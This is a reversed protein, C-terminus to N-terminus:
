EANRNGVEANPRAEEVRFAEALTNLAVAMEALREGTGSLEHMSAIQEQTAAATQQARVVAARAIQQVQEMHALLSSLGHTQVTLDTAIREIFRTNIAMTERLASVADRNESAVEGVDGLRATGAELRARVQAIATGVEQVVQVVEAASAGAQTALRRVEDAVVAFGRGAEGARAAEIAANLALLNTQRAIQQITDVFGGIRQGAGELLAMAAATRRFDEGLELLLGGAREAREAHSATQEAVARTRKASAGAERTLQRSTEVVEDVADRGAGVLATQEEAEATLEGTTAGIQEASAHVQEATAAMADSLEALARAQVQLQGITGGLARAMRDISVGLFGIEDLHRDGLRATLDGQELRALVERARRLRRILAAPAQITLGGAALLVVAELAIQAAGAPEPVLRDGLLRALPYLLTALWLLLWAARPSDLAYTAISFVLFPLALTGINGLALTYGAVLLSDVVVMAWFQWVAFRGRRLLWTAGGNALLMALGLAVVGSTPLVLVQLLRALLAFATAFAIIRWRNHIVQQHRTRLSLTRERQFRTEFSPETSPDPM